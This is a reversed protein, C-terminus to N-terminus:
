PAGVLLVPGLVNSAIASCLAFGTCSVMPTPTSFEATFMLAQQGSLAPATVHVGDGLREATEVTGMPSWTDGDLPYFIATPVYGSPLTPPPLVVIEDGGHFTGDAPSVLTANTGPAIDDVEAHAVVSSGELLDVTVPGVQLTPDLTVKANFCGDVDLTFSAEQGNVQLHTAAPL